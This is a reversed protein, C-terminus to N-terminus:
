RARSALEKGNVGGPMVVDTFLLDIREGSDLIALAAHANDAERVSYGLERLQNVVATRVEANDDVALIVGGDDRRDPGHAAQIPEPLELEASPAVPLYLRFTTGRGVESYATVHGGSQKMFGYVMSLGLGTGQGAPKTTFFPEFIRGLVEPAIGAGT